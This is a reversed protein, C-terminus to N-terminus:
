RQLFYLLSEENRLKLFGFLYICFYKKITLSSYQMVSAKPFPVIYQGCNSITCNVASRKSLAINSLHLIKFSTVIEGSLSESFSCSICCKSKTLFVCGMVQCKLKIHGFGEPYIKSVGNSYFLSSNFFLVFLYFLPRDTMSLLVSLSICGFTVDIDM